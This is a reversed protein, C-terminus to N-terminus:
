AIGRVQELALYNVADRAGIGEARQGCREGRAIASSISNNRNGLGVLLV